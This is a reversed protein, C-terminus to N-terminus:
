NRIAVDFFYGQGLAKFVDSIGYIPVADTIFFALGKYITQFALTTILSPVIQSRATIEGCLIGFFTAGIM